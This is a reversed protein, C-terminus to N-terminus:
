MREPAEIGLLGLGCGLVGATVACLVLRSSRLEASAAGLVPCTEYFTTYLGALEHLYACLKHPSWTELTAELAVPFDLLALALAREAPEVLM